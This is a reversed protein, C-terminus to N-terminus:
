KIYDIGEMPRAILGCDRQSRFEQMICYLNSKPLGGAKLYEFMKKLAIGSAISTQEDITKIIGIVQKYEKSGNIIEIGAIECIDKISQTIYETKKQKRIEIIEKDM